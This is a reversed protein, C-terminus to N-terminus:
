RVEYGFREMEQGCTDIIRAQQSKSLMEYGEGARGSRFFTKTQAPREKFGHKAEAAKLAELSTAQVAATLKKADIKLRWSSLLRRFESEPEAILDEYRLLTCPLQRQTRWSSVNQLWSGAAFYSGSPMRPLIRNKALVWDVAKDYSVNRFAAYSVVVDLPNRVIYVAAASDSVSVTPTGHHAGHWHHTKIFVYTKARQAIAHHVQPRVLALAADPLKEAAVPLFPQYFHGSNENPAFDQASDPRIELNETFYQMLFMRM